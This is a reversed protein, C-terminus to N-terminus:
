AQSENEAAATRGLPCEDAPTPDNLTALTNHVNAFTTLEAVADNWLQAVAAPTMGFAVADCSANLYAAIVDRAAKRAPNSGGGTCVLAQMTSDQVDAHCNFLVGCFLDTLTFPNTGGWTVAWQPDSPEDWLFKGVGGCWFGPTCSEACPSVTVTFTCTGTNGCADTSSCTVTTQGVPFVQGSAPVCLATVNPDCVDTVPTNFNVVENCAAAINGPCTILPPTNDEVGITQSAQSTNGCADTATWTRTVSYEQACAGPTPVDAFTLGPSADCADSATPTAFSPLAPCEIVSPGPLATIVPPTNDEVGITQSAQSTNGCM